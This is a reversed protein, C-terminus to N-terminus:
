IRCMNPCLEKAFGALEPTAAPDSFMIVRKINVTRFLRGLFRRACEESVYANMTSLNDILAFDCGPLCNGDEASGALATIDMCFPSPLTRDGNGAPAADTAIGAVTDIFTLDDLPVQRHQLIKKLYVAPRDVAFVVGKMGKGAVLTNMVTVLTGPFHHTQGEFLLCKKDEIGELAHAITMVM